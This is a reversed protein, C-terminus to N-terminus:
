KLLMKSSNNILNELNEHYSLNTENHDNLNKFCNPWKQKFNQDIKQVKFFHMM